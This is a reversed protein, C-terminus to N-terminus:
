GSQPMAHRTSDAAPKESLALDIDLRRVRSGAGACAPLGFACSIFPSRTVHAAGLRREEGICRAIQRRERCFEPEFINRTFRHLADLVAREVADAAAEIAHRQWPRAVHLRHRFFFACFRDGRNEAAAALSGDRLRHEDVAGGSVREFEIVDVFFRDHVGPRQCRRNRQCARLGGAARRPAVHNGPHHRAVFDARPHAIRRRHAQEQASKM